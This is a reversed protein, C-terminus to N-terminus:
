ILSLNPKIVEIESGKEAKVINDSIQKMVKLCKEAYKETSLKEEKSTEIVITIARDLCSLKFNFNKSIEAVLNNHYQQMQAKDKNTM